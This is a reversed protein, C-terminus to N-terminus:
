SGQWNNDVWAYVLSGGGKVAHRGTSGPIGHAHMEWTRGGDLSRYVGGDVSLYGVNNEEFMIHEVWDIIKWQQYLPVHSWTVGENTSKWLGDGFVSVFIHGERNAAVSVVSGSTPIVRTM